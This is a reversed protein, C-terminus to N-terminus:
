IQAGGATAQISSASVAKTSPTGGTLTAAGWSLTVSVKTTATNNTAAQTATVPVTTATVTGVTVDPSVPINSAWATGKGTVSLGLANGLNTMTNTAAAGILVQYSLLNTGGAFFAGGATLTGANTTALTYSNGTTGPLKASFTLVLTAQTVTINVLPLTNAYYNVGAAGVGTVADLLNTLSLAATAAIFIDNVLVPVTKFRFTQGGVSVTDGDTVNTGNSTLTQSAAVATANTIPDKGGTFYPNGVSLTNAATGDVANVTYFTTNLGNTATTLTITTSALVATSIFPNLVTGNAYNTGIVGTGLIAYVLNQMSLAATAAIQIDYPLVMVTKFRYQTANIQVTNGDSVNTGNNVITNTSPTENLTTVLQYTRTGITVTDGNTALVGTSTLTGTSLAGAVTSSNQEQWLIRQELKSDNVYNAATIGSAAARLELDARSPM